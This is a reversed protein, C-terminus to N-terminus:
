HNFLGAFPENSHYSLTRITTALVEILGIRSKGTPSAIAGAV